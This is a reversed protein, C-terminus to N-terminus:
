LKRIQWTHHSIQVSYSLLLACQLLQRWIYLKFHFIQVVLGLLVPFDDVRRDSLFSCGTKNLRKEIYLLNSFSRYILLNLPHIRFTNRLITRLLIDLQYAGKIQFTQGMCIEVQQSGRTSSFQYLFLYINPLNLSISLFSYTVYVISGYKILLQRRMAGLSNNPNQRPPPKPIFASRNISIDGSNNRVHRASPIPKRMQRVSFNQRQTSSKPPRPVRQQADRYSRPPEVSCSLPALSGSGGTSDVSRNTISRGPRHSVSVNAAASQNMKRRIAIFQSSRVPKAQIRQM